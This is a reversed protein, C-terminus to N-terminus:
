TPSRKLWALAQTKEDAPFRQIEAAVFHKAVQPAIKLLESDSVVAVREVKNHHGMVFELHSVLAGIGEWGPFSAADVMLGKLSGKAKIYPDVIGSLREFDAKGLPGHPALTVIGDDEMLDIQLM